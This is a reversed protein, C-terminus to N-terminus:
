PKNSFWLLKSAQECESRANLTKTPFDPPPQKSAEKGNGNGQLANQIQEKSASCLRNFSL